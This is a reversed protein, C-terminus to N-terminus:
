GALHGPCLRYSHFRRGDVCRVSSGVIARYELGKMSSSSVERVNWDANGDKAGFGDLQYVELVSHAKRLNSRTTLTGKCQKSKKM